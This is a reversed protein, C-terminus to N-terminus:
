LVALYKRLVEYDEKPIERYMSPWILTCDSWYAMMEKDWDAKTSGRWDMAVKHAYREPSGKTVFLFRSNYEMGANCETIEGIYHKM